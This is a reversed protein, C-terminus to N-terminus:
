PSAKSTNNWVKIRWYYKKGSQLPKDKYTIFVSSDSSIKGSDWVHGGFNEKESVDIRYATQMTGRKDSTIKWTFRPHTADMGIPDTRNECLLGYVTVQASCVFATIQLAFLLCFFKM